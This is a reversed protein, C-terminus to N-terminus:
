TDLRGGEKQKATSALIKLMVNFLPSFRRLSKLPFPRLKAGELMIDYIAQTIRENHLINYFDVNAKKFATERSSVM